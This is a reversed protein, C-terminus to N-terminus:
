KKSFRDFHIFHPKARVVQGSCVPEPNRKIFAIANMTFADTDLRCMFKVRLGYEKVLISRFDWEYVYGNTTLEDAFAMIEQYPINKVEAAKQLGTRVLELYYECRRNKDAKEYRESDFPLHVDLIPYPVKIIEVRTDKSGISFVIKDFTGDTEFKLQRVKKTLCYDIFYVHYNFHSVYKTGKISEMREDGGIFIYRLKM